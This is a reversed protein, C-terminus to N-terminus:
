ESSKAGPAFSVEKSQDFAGLEMTFTDANEGREHRVRYSTPLMPDSGPPLSRETEAPSVM